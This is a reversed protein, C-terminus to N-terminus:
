GVLGATAAYRAAQTRNAAGTKQLISRVHNAATNEAIFLSRAIQRNSFGQAVLGLVELERASLGAPRPAEARGPAAATGATTGARGVEAPLIARTRTLGLRECLAAADRTLRRELAPDSGTRHLHAAWEALTQAQHVPAQMRTDMELASAFWDDPRDRGLLSDVAGLYRDASGFVAVFPGNLLNFGAYEVLHPRLQDAAAADKLALAAEVLFALVGTWDASARYVSLDESLLKGLLTAAAATLGLETYLSLLGPGWRQAAIEDGTVLPRIQELGGTERRLMYMQVGYPGDTNSLDLLAGRELLLTSTAEAAAFEGAMFQRAHTACDSLLTWYEDGTTHATRLLDARAAALGAADGLVYSMTARHYASPGLHHLDGTREAVLRLEHALDLDPHVGLASATPHLPHQLCAQLADALVGDDGLARALGVARTGVASAEEHAGTYGLARGLSALAQVYLPDAPDHEVERLGRSLLEAAVFAWEGTRFSAAEYGVAARLRQRDSGSAAVHENLERARTYDGNLLFSRAATLRLDDAEVQGTAVAAAREFLQAAESHALARDAQRAAESLYRVAQDVYGLATCSAYHHALRQVRLPTGVQAELVRAVREHTRVVLSPAMLDLVAQRALAHPFRLLGASRPVSELLGLAVATDLGALIRDPAADVVALLLAIEVNEGVVAAVDLVHRQEAAVGALRSEVMERISDPARLGAAGLARVGGRTALDRWLERLFFPNGGSQAHLVRAAATSGHGAAGSELRLYEAVDDVNLAGLSVREVGDLRSLRSIAGVLLDSRDPPTSRHTALVLLPVDPTRQVLHSFLRLSAAGAWHLDDLALVVPGDACAAVVTQAATDYVEREYDRGPLSGAASILLGLRRATDTRDAGAVVLGGSDVEAALISLPDVLPEYPAGFEAACSGVLVAAGFEHFRAAADAVLRSKGAGPEGGVLVVQRAGDAARAWARDLAGREDRRGVFAPHQGGQWHAPLPRHRWTPM